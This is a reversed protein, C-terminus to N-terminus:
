GKIVLHNPYSVAFWRPLMVVKAKPFDAQFTLGIRCKLPEIVQCPVMERMSDRYEESHGAFGQRESLVALAAPCEEARAFFNLPTPAPAKTAPSSAPKSAAPPISTPTEASAPGTAQAPLSGTTDETGKDLDETTTQPTGESTDESIGLETFEVAETSEPVSQSARDAADKIADIGVKKKQTQQRRAM